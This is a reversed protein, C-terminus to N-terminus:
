TVDRYQYRYRYRFRCRRGFLLWLVVRFPFGSRIRARACPPLLVCTAPVLTPIHFCLFFFCFRSFFFYFCLCSFCFALCLSFSFCSASPSLTVHLFPLFLFLVPFLFLPQLPLICLSLYVGLWIALYGSLWDTLARTGALSSAPSRTLSLLCSYSRFFSYVLSHSGWRFLFGSFFDCSAFRFLGFRFVFGDSDLCAVSETLKPDSDPGPDPV